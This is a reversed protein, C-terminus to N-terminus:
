HHPSPNPTKEEINPRAVRVAESYSRVFRPRVVIDAWGNWCWKFETTMRIACIHAQILSFLHVHLFVHM